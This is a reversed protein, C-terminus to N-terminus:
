GKNDGNLALLTDADALRAQEQKRAAAEADPAQASAGHGGVLAALRPRRRRDV